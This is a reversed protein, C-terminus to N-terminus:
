KEQSLIKPVIALEKRVVKVLDMELDYIDSVKETDRLEIKKKMEFGFAM